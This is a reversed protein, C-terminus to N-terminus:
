DRKRFKISVSDNPIVIVAKGWLDAFFCISTDAINYLVTTKANGNNIGFANVKSELYPRPELPTLTNLPKRIKFYFSDKNSKENYLFDIKLQGYIANQFIFLFSAIYILKSM